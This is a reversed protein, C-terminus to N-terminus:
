CHCVTLKVPILSHECDIESLECASSNALLPVRNAKRPDALSHECDIESLESAPATLKCDCVALKLTTPILECDIESLESAPATLKCHCM